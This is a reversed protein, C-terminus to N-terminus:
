SVLLAVGSVPLCACRLLLSRGGPLVFVACCGRRRLALVVRVDAKAADRLEKDVKAEAAEKEQQLRRLDEELRVAEQM